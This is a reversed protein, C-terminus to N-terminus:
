KIPQGNLLFTGPTGPQIEFTLTGTGKDDKIFHTEMLKLLDQKVGAPLMDERRVGAMVDDIKLISVTAKGTPWSRGGPFRFTGDANLEGLFHRFPLISIKFVPQTKMFESGIKMSRAIVAQQRARDDPFQQSMGTRTLMIYSQILAPSLHGLSFNLNLERFNTALEVTKNDPISTRLEKVNFFFGYDFFERSEDPKLYYSFDIQGLSGVMLEKKVGTVWFSFNSMKGYVDFMPLGGALLRPIKELDVDEKFFTSIFAPKIRNRSELSDISLIIEGVRKGKEAASIELQLQQLLSDVAPNDEILRALLQSFTGAGSKLLASLNYNKFKMGAVSVRIKVVGDFDGSQDRQKQRNQIWRSMDWDLKLNKVSDLALFDDDPGYLFGIEEVHLPITEAEFEPMIERYVSTDFVVTPEKLTLGFGPSGDPLLTSQIVIQDTGAEITLGLPAANIKQLLAEVDQVMLAKVRKGKGCSLVLLLLLGLMLFLVINRKM